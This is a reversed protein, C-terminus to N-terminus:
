VKTLYVTFFSLWHLKPNGSCKCIILIIIMPYLAMWESQVSINWIEREEKETCKLKPHEHKLSLNKEDWDNSNSPHVRTWPNVEPGSHVGNIDVLETLKTPSPSYNM